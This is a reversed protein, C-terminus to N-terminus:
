GGDDNFFGILGHFFDFAIAQQGEEAQGHLEARNGIEAQIQM